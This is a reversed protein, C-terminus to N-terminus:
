FSLTLTGVIRRGPLPIDAPLAVPSESGALAQKDFVNTV